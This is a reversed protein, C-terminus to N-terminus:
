HNFLTCRGMRVTSLFVNYAAEGTIERGEGGGLVKRDEIPSLINHGELFPKRLSMKCYCKVAKNYVRSPKADLLYNSRFTAPKIRGIDRGM